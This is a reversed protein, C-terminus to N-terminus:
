KYSSENNLFHTQKVKKECSSIDDQLKVLEGGIHNSKTQLTEPIDEMDLLGSLVNSVSQSLADLERILYSFEDNEADKNKGYKKSEYNQIEKGIEMFHSQVVGVWSENEKLFIERKETNTMTKKAAAIEHIPPCSIGELFAIVKVAFHMYQAINRITSVSSQPLQSLAQNLSDYILGEKHCMEHLDYKSMIEEVKRFHQKSCPIEITPTMKTTNFIISKLKAPSLKDTIKGSVRKIAHYDVPVKTEFFDYQGKERCSYCFFNSKTAIRAGQGRLYCRQHFSEECKDCVVINSFSEVMKCDCILMQTSKLDTPFPIKRCIRGTEVMVKHEKCQEYSFPSVKGTGAMELFETRFQPTYKINEPLLGHALAVANAVAFMGCDYGNEQQQCPRAHITLQGFDAPNLLQSAQWFTANTCKFVNRSNAEFRIMSDYMNVHTKRLHPEIGINTLLVWHEAGNHIMQIFDNVPDLLPFGCVQYLHTPNLGTLAPFTVALSEHLFDSHRDDLWLAYGQTKRDLCKIQRSVWRVELGNKEFAANALTPPYLLDDIESHEPAIAKKTHKFGYDKTNCSSKGTLPKSPFCLKPTPPNLVNFDEFLAGEGESKSIKWRDPINHDQFLQEKKLKRFLFVHRCPLMNSISFTCAGHSRPCANGQSETLLSSPTINEIEIKKYEDIFMDVVKKSVIKSANSVLDMLLPDKIDAPLYQKNLDNWTNQASRLFQEEEMFLAEKIVFALKSRKEIKQKLQKNYNESRNNTYCDFITRNKVIYFAFLDRQQHWNVQFYDKARQLDRSTGDLQTLETWASNYEEETPAYLMKSFLSKLIKKLDQEGPFHLTHIHREVANIVHYRCLTFQINPYVQSFASIEAFSKDLIVHDITHNPNCEKLCALVTMYHKRSETPILAWAAVRSSKSNDIVIINVKVYDCQLLKYTGDVLIVSGYSELLKRMKNSQYFICELIPSNDSTCSDYKLKVTGPNNEELKQLIDLSEELDSQKEGKLGIKHKVAANYLDKTTTRKGIEERILRAIDASKAKLKIKDKGVYEKEESPDLHRSRPHFTMDENSPDHNTHEPSMKTVLYCGNKESYSVLMFFTCNNQFSSQRPRKGSKPKKGTNSRICIYKIYLKPFKQKDVCSKKMPKSDRVSLITNKNTQLEKIFIKLDHIDSFTKGVLNNEKHGSQKEETRDQMLIETIGNKDPELEQNFQKESVNDDLEEKAPLTTNKESEFINEKSDIESQPRGHTPPLNSLRTSDFDLDSFVQSNDILFPDTKFSQAPLNLGVNQSNDISDDKDKSPTLLKNSGKSSDHISSEPTIKEVNNALNNDFANQFNEKCKGYPNKQPTTQTWQEACSHSSDASPEAENLLLRPKKPRSSLFEEFTLPREDVVRKISAM